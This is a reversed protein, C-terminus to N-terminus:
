GKLELAAQAAPYVNGGMQQVAVTAATAAHHLLVSSQNLWFFLPQPSSSYSVKIDEISATFGVVALYFLSEFPPPPLPLSSM